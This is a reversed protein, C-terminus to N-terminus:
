QEAEHIFPYWVSWPKGGAGRPTRRQLKREPITAVKARLQIMGANLNRKADAGMTKGIGPAIRVALAMAATAVAFDPIGSAEDPDGEGFASPFNYNLYLSQSEWDAMMGDLKRLASSVEEPTHDFTYGPLGAEEFAMKIITLKSATSPFAPTDDATAEVIEVTIIQQLTRGDGTTIQDLLIVTGEEGGSLEVTVLETGVTPTGLTLTGDEVTLSHTDIYDGNLAGSWNIEREVIEDPTKSRWRLGM